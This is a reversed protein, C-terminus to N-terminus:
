LFVWVRWHPVPWPTLGHQTAHRFRPVPSQPLWPDHQSLAHQPWTHLPRRPRRELLDGGRPPWEQVFAVRRHGVGM